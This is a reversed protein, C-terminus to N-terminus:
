GSGSGFRAGSGRGAAEGSAERGVSRARCGSGHGKDWTEAEGRM